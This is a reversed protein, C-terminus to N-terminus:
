CGARRTGGEKPFVLCEVFDMDRHASCVGTRLAGQADAHRRKSTAAPGLHINGCTLQIDTAATSHRIFTRDRICM